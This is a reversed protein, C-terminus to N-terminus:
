VFFVCYRQENLICLSLNDSVFIEERIGAVFFPAANHRYLKKGASKVSEM